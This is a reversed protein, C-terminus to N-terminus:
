GPLRRRAGRVPPACARFLEVYGAALRDWSFREYAFRHRAAAARPSDGEGRAREILGALAGRQELDALLGHEGAAFRAWPADHALVPLGHALAEVLVRGSRFLM